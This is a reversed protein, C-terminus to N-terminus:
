VHEALAHMVLAALAESAIITSMAVPKAVHVPINAENPDM